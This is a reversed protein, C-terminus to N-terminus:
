MPPFMPLTPVTRRKHALYRFLKVEYGGPNHCYCPPIWTMTWHWPLLGWYYTYYFYVTKSLVIVFCPSIKCVTQTICHIYMEVTKVRQYVFFSKADLLMYANSSYIRKANIWYKVIVSASDVRTILKAHEHEASRHEVCRASWIVRFQVVAM